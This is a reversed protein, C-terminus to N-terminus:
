MSVITGTDVDYLEFHCDPLSLVGGTREPRDRNSYISGPNIIVKGEFQVYMPHHTHGLIIVQGDVAKVIERFLVAPRSPYLYISADQWPNAHTIYVEVGAWHFTLSAPLSTLYTLSREQLPENYMFWVFQAKSDHNGQVCPINLERMLDIVGDSHLGKDVLDGACLIQDVNLREFLRLTKHLEDLHGHVDSFIGIKM